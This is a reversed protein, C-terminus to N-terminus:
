RSRVWWILAWLVFLFLSLCSVGVFLGILPRWFRALFPRGRDQGPDKRHRQIVRVVWAAYAIVSAAAITALIWFLVQRGGRSSDSIVEGAKLPRILRISTVQFDRANAGSQWYVAFDAVRRTGKVRFYYRGRASTTTVHVRSGSRKYVIDSVDGVHQKVLANTEIFAQALEREPRHDLSFRMFWEMVGFSIALVVCIIVAKRIM